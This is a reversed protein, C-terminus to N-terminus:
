MGFFLFTYAPGVAFRVTKPSLVTLTTLVKPDVNTVTAGVINSALAIEPAASAATSQTATSAQVGPAVGADPAAGPGRAPSSDGPADGPWNKYAIVGYPRRSTFGAPLYSALSEPILEGTAEAAFYGSDSHFRYVAERLVELDALVAAAAKRRELDGLKPVAVAAVSGVIALVSAIELLRVKVQNTM